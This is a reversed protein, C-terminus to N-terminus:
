SVKIIVRACDGSTLTDIATNINALQFQHSVLLNLDIRGTKFLDLYRPIDETPNSKGGQTAIIKIGTNSFLKLPDSLFFSEEPKPQGILIMRGGARIKTVGMNWLETKGTTDIVVDVQSSLDDISNFFESAGSQEVRVKKYNNSDVGYILSAGRIKAAQILSLGLGGCGIVAVKEGFRIKAENEIVGFATTIACGLLAGFIENTDKPVVTLRNESVISLESLTTIKGSSITNGKYIYNPFESELGTGVRWHMVVKDGVKLKTVGVGIELVEGFGEHGMLHPLFKGNGKFGRIEHLQSGCIGSAIIRVLVQGVKLPTLDLDALELPKNLEVLLAGKM